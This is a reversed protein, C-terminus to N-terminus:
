SGGSVAALMTKVQQNIVTLGTEYHLANDAFNVRETDLEVTNGDLSQQSPVRYQPTGYVAGSAMAAAASGAVGALHGAHTATMPLSGDVFTSAGRADTSSLTTGGPAGQTGLARNLSSAFDVDRAKYNPTDVNAINESALQQRYARLDLAQRGFNFEADLKDM